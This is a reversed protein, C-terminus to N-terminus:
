NERRATRLYAMARSVRKRVVSPSCELEGAIDVYDRGDLVRATLAQFQDAPLAAKLDALV